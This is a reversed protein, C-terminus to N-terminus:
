SEADILVVAASFAPDGSFSPTLAAGFLVVSQGNELANFDVREAVLSTDSAAQRTRLIYATTPVHVWVPGGVASLLHFMRDDRDIESITGELKSQLSGQGKIVIVSAKFQAPSDSFIIGKIIVRKGTTLDSPSAAEHTGGQLLITEDQFFVTMESDIEQDPDPLFVFRDNEDDGFEDVGKQIVGQLRLPEGIEILKAKLSLVPERSLLGKVHVFEDLDLADFGAPNGTEDFIRTDDSVFVRIRYPREDEDDDTQAFLHRTRKLLFSKDEPRISEIRGKVSILREAFDSLITVFIVPRLKYKSSAPHIHISKKADFDIRVVLTGGSVIRFPTKAILDIKGNAVLQIQDSKVEDGNTKVFLPDEVKLRIKHYTGAPISENVMFLDEVEELSLLDIRRSGQFLSVKEKDDSLLEVSRVTVFVKSFDETPGDTFLLALTGTNKGSGGGGGGPSGSGTSLDSSSGCGGLALAMVALFLSVVGLRNLRSRGISVLRLCRFIINNILDM